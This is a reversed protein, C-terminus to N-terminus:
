VKLLGHRALLRTLSEMHDRISRRMREPKHRGLAKALAPQQAAARMMAEVVATPDRTGDLLTVIQASVADLHLAQHRPTPIAGAGQAAVARVLRSARPGAPEAAAEQPPGAKAVPGSASAPAPGPGPDPSPSPTSSALPGSNSRIEAPCLTAQLGGSVFLNFLDPMLEAIQAPGAVAANAAAIEPVLDSLRRADPFAEALRSLVAGALAHEVAFAQGTPNRFAGTTDPVLDTYLPLSLLDDILIERTLPEASRCLLTQRFPRLRLFDAYQEEDILDDFRALKKEAAAGLTSPFMTHLRADALYQLGHGGARAVFDSFLLPEHTEELYEHYLYSDRAGRLTEVEARLWDYGRPPEDLPTALFELLERAGALRKRPNELARVHHLLMDRLMSRQRGGPLTNFSICAIGGPALRAGCLALIHEQVPRPVWSFVGHAIIYDFPEGDLPLDLIDQHRIEANQLNLTGILDAGQQAQERSLEIGVCHTQPLYWAIPLLNGGAAAGLELVRARAPDPAELGFLRGIVALRDPHTETIPFSEYPIADYSALTQTM